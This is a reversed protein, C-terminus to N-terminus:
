DKQVETWTPPLDLTVTVSAKSKPSPSLYALLDQAFEVTRDHVETVYAERAETESTFQVAYAKPLGEGDDALLTVKTERVVRYIGGGLDRRDFAWCKTAKPKEDSNLAPKTAAKKPAKRVKSAAAKIAPAGGAVAEQQEAPPLNALAVVDKRTVEENLALQKAVPGTNEIVNDLAKAFVADRKITAPSVNHQAALREATREPMVPESHDREEEPRHPAKKQSNHLKGRLYSLENESNNRRGLAREAIWHIAAQRDPLDVAWVTFPIGHKRCLRERRHGDLILGDHGHWIVVPDSCGDRVLAAELLEEEEATPERGIASFEPDIRLATLNGATLPAPDVPLDDQSDTERIAAQYASHAEAKEPFFCFLRKEFKRGRLGFCYKETQKAIPM